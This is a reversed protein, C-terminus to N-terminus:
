DRGEWECEGSCEHCNECYSGTETHEKGCCPCVKEETWKVWRQSLRSM